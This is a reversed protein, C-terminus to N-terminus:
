IIFMVSDFIVVFLEPSSTFITEFTLKQPFPHSFFFLFHLYICSSFPICIIFSLPNFVHLSMSHLFVLVLKYTSGSCSIDLIQSQYWDPAALNTFPDAWAYAGELWVVISIHEILHPFEQIKNIIEFYLPSTRLHAEYCDM